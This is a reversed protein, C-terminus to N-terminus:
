DFDLPLHRSLDSREGSASLRGSAVATSWELRGTALEIWTRPDCEVTARPTGRRHRPGAVVQAAAHPPVRVEVSRGPAKLQLARLLVKVARSELDHDAVGGADYARLCERVPSDGRGAVPGEMGSGAETM